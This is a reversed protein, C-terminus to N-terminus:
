YTDNRAVPRRPQLDAVIVNQQYAMVRVASTWVEYGELTVRVARSGALQNSLALPTTGVRRGNIFVTAGAPRSRVILSGHFPPGAEAATRRAAQPRSPISTAGPEDAAPTQVIAAPLGLGAAGAPASATPPAPAPAAATAAPADGAHSRTDYRIDPAATVSNPAASVAQHDLPSQVTWMVLAGVALGSLFAALPTSLTSRTSLATRNAAAAAMVYRPIVIVLRAILSPIM